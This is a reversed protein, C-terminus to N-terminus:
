YYRFTTAPDTYRQPDDAKEDNHGFQIFVYDGPKIQGELASWRGENAFSKSSRGSRAADDVTVGSAFLPQLVAAWGVRATPDTPPFIASTSDGVVHITVDVPTAVSAPAAAKGGGCGTALAFLVAFPLPPRRSCRM